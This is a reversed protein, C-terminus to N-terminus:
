EKGFPPMSQPLINHKIGKIIEDLCKKYTEIDGGFPDSIEPEFVTIKSASSPFLQILTMAHASTMGIIRECSSIIGANIQVARHATYKNGNDESIGALRLAEAANEAIPWGTEACLGASIGTINFERGLYTLVAAAMPSRCTNGTCVFCFRRQIEPIQGVMMGATEPVPNICTNM